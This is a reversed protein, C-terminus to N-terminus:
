LVLLSKKSGSRSLYPDLCFKLLLYFSIFFGNKLQERIDGPRLLESNDNDAEFIWLIRTQPKKLLDISFHIWSKVLHLILLYTFSWAYFRQDQIFSFSLETKAQSNAKNTKNPKHNEEPKKNTKKLGKVTNIQNLARKYFRM